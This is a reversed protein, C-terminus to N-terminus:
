AEESEAKEKPAEAGEGEDGSIGKRFERIGEGLDRGLQGLRGVGFILLVIVLVIVLELPGIKPMNSTGGEQKIQLANYCV